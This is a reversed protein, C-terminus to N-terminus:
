FSCGAIPKSADKPDAACNRSDFTINVGNTFGVVAFNAGFTSIPPTADPPYQISKQTWALSCNGRADLKYTSVTVGGAGAPLNNPRVRFYPLLPDIKMIYADIGNYSKIDDEKCKHGVYFQLETYGGPYVTAPEGLTVQGRGGVVAATDALAQPGRSLQAISM